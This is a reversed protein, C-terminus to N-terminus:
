SKVFTNRYTQKKKKFTRGIKRKIYGGTRLYGGM